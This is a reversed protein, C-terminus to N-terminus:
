TLDREIAEDEFVLRIKGKVKEIRDIDFGAREVLLILNNLDVTYGKEDYGYWTGEKTVFLSNGKRDSFVLKDGIALIIRVRLQSLHSYM